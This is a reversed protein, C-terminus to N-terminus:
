SLGESENARVYRELEEERIRTLHGIKVVKLRGRNMELYLLSRSVRLREAAETVTLLPTM